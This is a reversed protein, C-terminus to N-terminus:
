MTFFNMLYEVCISICLVLGRGGLGKFEMMDPTAWNRLRKLTNAFVNGDICVASQTFSSEM